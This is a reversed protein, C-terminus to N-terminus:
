RKRWSFSAGGHTRGAFHKTRSYTGSISRGDSSIRASVIRGASITGEAWSGSVTRGNVRLSITGYQSRYTQSYTGSYTNQGTKRLSVTGWGSWTGSINPSKSVQPRAVPKPKKTSKRPKSRKTPSSRKRSAPPQGSLDKKGRGVTGGVAGAQALKTSLSHAQDDSQAPRLGFYVLLSMACIFRLSESKVRRM